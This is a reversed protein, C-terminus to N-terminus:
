PASVAFFSIMWRCRGAYPSSLMRPERLAPDQSPANGNPANAESSDAVKSCAEKAVPADLEMKEPADGALFASQSAPAQESKVVPEDIEQSSGAKTVTDIAGSLPASHSEESTKACGGAATPDTAIGSAAVGSAPAATPADETSSTPRPCSPVLPTPKAISPAGPQEWQTKNNSKKWYYVKNTKSEYVVHWGAPLPIKEDFSDIWNCKRDWEELKSQLVGAVVQPPVYEPRLGGEVQACPQVSDLSDDENADGGEKAENGDIGKTCVNELTEALDAEFAKLAEAADEYIQSKEGNYTMANKFVLIVDAVVDALMEYGGCAPMDLRDRISGLDMPERIVDAYDACGDEIPRVPRLFPETDPRDTVRDVLDKALQAFVPKSLPLLQRNEGLGFALMHMKGAHLEREFDGLIFELVQLDYKTSASPDRCVNRANVLALRIDHIVSDADAYLGLEINARVLALDMPNAVSKPDETELRESINAWVPHKIMKELVQAIFVLNHPVKCHYFRQSKRYKVIPMAEPHVNSDSNPENDVHKRSFFADKFLMDLDILVREAARCRLAQISVDVKVPQPPPLAKILDPQRPPIRVVTGRLVRANVTIGPIYPKNYANLAEPTLNFKKAINRLTEEEDAVYEYENTEEEDDEEEEEQEGESLGEKVGNTDDNGRSANKGVLGIGDVDMADDHGAKEEKQTSSNQGKSRRRSDAVAASPPGEGKPARDTAVMYQMLVHRAEVLMQVPDSIQNEELRNSVLDLGPIPKPVWPTQKNPSDSRSALPSTLQSPASDKLLATEQLVWAVPLSSIQQLIKQCVSKWNDQQKLEVCMRGADSLAAAGMGEHAAIKAHQRELQRAKRLEKEDWLSPASLFTCHLSRAMARQDSHEDLAVDVNEFMLRVDSAMQPLSAYHGCELLAHMTCLDMPAAVKSIYRNLQPTGPSPLARFWWSAPHRAISRVLARAEQVWDDVEDVGDPPPKKVPDTDDRSDRAVMELSAVMAKVIPALHNKLETQLMVSAQVKIDIEGTATHAGGTRKNGSADGGNRACHRLARKCERVFTGMHRHRSQQVRVTLTELKEVVQATVSFNSNSASDSPSDQATTRVFSQLAEVVRLCADKWPLEKRPL